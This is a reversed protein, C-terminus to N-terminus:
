RNKPSNPQNLSSLFIKTPDSERARGRAFLRSSYADFDERHEVMRWLASPNFWQGQPGRSSQWFNRTENRYLGTLICVNRPREGINM